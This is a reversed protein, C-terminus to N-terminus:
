RSILIIATLVMEIVGLSETRIKRFLGVSTEPVVDDLLEGGM